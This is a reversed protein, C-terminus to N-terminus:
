LDITLQIKRNEPVPQQAINQLFALIEQHIRNCEPTWKVAGLLIRASERLETFHFEEAGRGQLDDIKEQLKQYFVLEYGNGAEKAARAISLTIPPALPKLNDAIADCGIRRLMRKM